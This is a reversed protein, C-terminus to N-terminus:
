CDTTCVGLVQVKPQPFTIRDNAEMLVKWLKIKCGRRKGGTGGREVEAISWRETKEHIALGRIGGLRWRWLVGVKRLELLVVSQVWVVGSLTEGLVRRVDV